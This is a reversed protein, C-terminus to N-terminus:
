HSQYVGYYGVNFRNSSLSYVRLEGAADILRIRRTGHEGWVDRNWTKGDDDSVLVYIRDSEGEVEVTATGFLKGEHWVLGRQRPFVIKRDDGPANGVEAWEEAGNTTRYLTLRNDSANNNEVLAWGEDLSSFTLCILELGGEENWPASYKNWHGGQSNYMFGSHSAVYPRDGAVGMSWTYFPTGEEVIEWSKGENLSAYIRPPGERGGTIFFVKGDTTAAVNSADRNVPIIDRLNSLDTDSLNVWSKGGDDTKGIFMSIGFGSRHGVVYGTEEDIFSFSGRLPAVYERSPEFNEGGDGSHYLDGGDNWQFLSRGGVVEDKTIFHLLNFNSQGQPDQDVREFMSSEEFVVKVEKDGDMVISTEPSDNDSVDGVWEVFAWGVGPDAVLDVEVGEVFEHSGVEPEVSGEGEMEVTLTYLVADEEFIATVVRDETMQITTEASTRSAVEGVWERFAWGEAAEAYLNVSSDQEYDHVGEPPEVMGEGEVQITLSHDEGLFNDILDCGAVLVALFFCVVPLPAKCLTTKKM